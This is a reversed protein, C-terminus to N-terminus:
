AALRIGAHLLLGVAGGVFTGNIRIYQLDKGIQLEVKRSVEEADWSKVVDTILVSVQHRFRVAIKHVADLWWANLKHRVGPDDLLREGLGALAGAIHRTIVSSDRGLDATVWGRVNEWLSRYFDETQLHQVLRRLLAQGKQRYEESNVLDHILDQTARDFQGRLEHRPNESVEHLLAVIGQIFKTVVYKDVVRPTYRSEESFKAEILGGNAVLWRELALLARDLLVQHRRNETLVMLINGAIRSVNLSLLQPTLARDFFHRVDEDELGNLLAPIFDAVAEAVALSNSRRALWEALAQAADHQRLKTIINEPTLFNNEIFDGLSEGIRDKNSPIIATHPIPLGLPRRFLATVAYWDAMAGVTGAEAFARIWHMWPHRSQYAASVALLLLMAGLLSTALWQMRRLPDNSFRGRADDLLSGSNAEGAGSSIL